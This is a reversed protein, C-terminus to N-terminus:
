FLVQVTTQFYRNANSQNSALINNGNGNFYLFETGAGIVSCFDYIVLGNITTGGNYIAGNGIRGTIVSTVPMSFELLVSGSGATGGSANALNYWVTCINGRITFRCDIASYSPATGGTARITPTFSFSSPFGKPNEVRSYHNNTFTHSTLSNGRVTLLTDAIGVIYGYLVVSNSTLMFKDGKQYRSTAGSPVNITTPSDYSWEENAPVWGTLYSLLDAIDDSNDSVIQVVEKILNSKKFRVSTGDPSHTLDSIDVGYLIDNDDITTIENLQSTRKGMKIRILNFSGGLEL